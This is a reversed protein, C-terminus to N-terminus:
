SQFLAVFYMWVMKSRIVLKERLPRIAPAEFIFPPLTKTGYFLM